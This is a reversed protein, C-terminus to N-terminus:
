VVGTQQAKVITGPLHGKHRDLASLSVQFRRATAGPRRSISLGRKERAPSSPLNYLTKAYSELGRLCTYKACLLMNKPESGENEVALNRTGQTRPSDAMRVMWRM